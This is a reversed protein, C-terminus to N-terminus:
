GRFFALSIWNTPGDVKCIIGDALAKDIVHRVLGEWHLLVKRATLIKMPMIKGSRLHITMPKGCAPRKPLTDSIVDKFEASLQVKLDSLSKAVTKRDRCHKNTHGYGGSSQGDIHDTHPSHCGIVRDNVVSSVHNDSYKFHVKDSNSCELDSNNNKDKANREESFNVHCRKGMLLDLFNDSIVELQWLDLYGLLLGEKVDPSVVVVISASIGSHPLLVHLKAVGDMHLLIVNVATLEPLPAPVDSVKIGFRSMLKSSIISNASGSDPFSAFSFWGNGHRVKVKLHPTVKPHIELGSHCDDEDSLNDLYVYKSSKAVSRVTVSSCTHHAHGHKRCGACELDRADLFCSNETKHSTM